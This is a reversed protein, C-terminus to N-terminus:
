SVCRMAFAWFLAKQQYESTVDASGQHGSDMDTHLLAPNGSTSRRRVEAVLKAPEWYAVRDDKLGATCLLPPYAAARVNEYPSISAIYDYAKPDALPDGWDPRFLPVLPHAGDSMTNLMDVFPVQAIVGGWLTPAINMSAGVLLGGASLGYAVVKGKATYGKAALHEACAIFDTFSNRKTFKRGGLFWRRGKESGGRVHAIAYRWGRDVLALAPISFEPDSPVGYSGYGYQLLPAKGDKPAGRRSLLTIPVMEGDPAPAFLREVEYADPDFNAVQQQQIVTQKGSALDIRIWRRPSKPSQHVIMVSSADYAQEPPLEIAYAPDNFAIVQESGDPRLIALRHLGDVRELRALATAFPQIQLIPTGPRHPVLMALKRFDKPDLRLLSMDFAEDADTLAILGGNWEDIEYLVGAKRPWVVAPAATEDAASLLRVEATEPGALTLAIFGDASTRKVQMFIAPDKEEYVLDTIKGDVSTRYLRTPRNRADRWIWFLWRSSPAFVLGGYGYADKDVITRIDGSRNDRICIRHRDNGIVDEAWAFYRHDPSPQHGTSRFYPQGKARASEDVLLEAPRGDKQRSYRAHAQGEPIASSYTWGDKELAPAAVAGSSRALMARVLEAQAAKTPELVADAYANEDALMKAVPAPLNTRNREGEAPIFKMWSYADDRQRGLQDIVHSIRPSQPPAIKPWRGPAGKELARAAGSGLLLAAMAASSMFARRGKNEISHM